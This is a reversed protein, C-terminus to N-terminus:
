GMSKVRLDQSINSALYQSSAFGRSSEGQERFLRSRRPFEDQMSPNQAFRRPTKSNQGEVFIDDDFRSPDFHRLSCLPGCLPCSLMPLLWILLTSFPVTTHGQLM